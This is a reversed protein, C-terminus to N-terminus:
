GHRGFGSEGGLVQTGRDLPGEVGEERLLGLDQGADRRVEHGEGVPETLEQGPALPQTRGEAHPAVQARAARVDRMGQVGGGRQLPEPREPPPGLLPYAFQEIELRVASREFTTRLM